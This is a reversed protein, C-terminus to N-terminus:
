ARMALIKKQDETPARWERSRVLTNYEVEALKMLREETLLIGKDNENIKQAIYQKFQVNTASKYGKFLNLMIDNSNKSRSKLVDLQMEV